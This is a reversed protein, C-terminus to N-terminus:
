KRAAPRVRGAVVPTGHHLHGGGSGGRSPGRAGSDSGTSGTESGDGGTGTDDGEADEEEDDWSADGGGGGGGGAGGGGGSASGRGKLRAAAPSRLMTAADVAKRASGTTRRHPPGLHPSLGVASAASAWAARLWLFRGYVRRELAVYGQPLRAGGAGDPGERRAKRVAVLAASCARVEWAWVHLEAMHYVAHSPDAPPVSPGFGAGDEAWAGGPWAVGGGSAGGDDEPSGMRYWSEVEDDDGAADDAPQWVGNDGWAGDGEGDGDGDWGGGAAADRDWAEGGGGDAAAAANAAVVLMKGRAADHWARAIALAALGPQEPQPGGLPSGPTPSAAAAAAAGRALGDSAVAESADTPAGGKGSWFTVRRQVLALLLEVLADIHEQPPSSKTRPAVGLMGRCAAAAANLFLLECQTSAAQAEDAAWYGFVLGAFAPAHPLSSPAAAGAAAAASALSPAGGPSLPGGAASSDAGGVRGPVSPHELEEAIAAAVDDDLSASLEAATAMLTALPVPADTCSCVSLWDALPPPSPSARRAAWTGAQRCALRALPLLRDLQGSASQLSEVPVLRSSPVHTSSPAPDSSSSATLAGGGDDERAAAATRSREPQRSKAPAREREREGAGDAAGKKLGDWSAATFVMPGGDEDAAGDEDDEPEAGADHGNVFPHSLLDAAAPRVSPDPHICRTVFDRARPSLWAPLKDRLDTSAIHLQVEASDNAIGFWPPRATLLELVTCGVSWVDARQWWEISDVVLRAPARPASSPSAGATASSSSSSAAAATGGLKLGAMVVEPAMWQLTGQERASRQEEKKQGPAPGGWVSDSFSPGGGAGEDMEGGADEEYAETEVSESDKGDAADDAADDDAGKREAAASSYGGGGGGGGGRGARGAAAQVGRRRPPVVRRPTWSLKCSGFDALMVHGDASLLLNAGKVDRHAIGCSHVHTLARLLEGTYVRVAGEPLGRLFPAAGAAAASSGDGGGKGGDDGGVRTSSALAYPGKIRTGGAWASALQALTGGPVYELFLAARELPSALSPPARRLGYLRPVNPHGYCASLAAAERFASRWASPQTLPVEKVAVPTGALSGLSPHARGAGSVSVSAGPLSPAPPPDSALLGLHVTGFAGRGIVPGRRWKLGDASPVPPPSPSTSSSALSRSPAAPVLAPPASDAAPARAPLSSSSSSPSPATKLPPSPAAAAAAAGKAPSAASQPQLPQPVPLADPAAAFSVAFTRAHAPATAGAFKWALAPDASDRALSPSHSHSPSAAATVGAFSLFAPIHEEPIERFELLFKDDKSSAPPAPDLM